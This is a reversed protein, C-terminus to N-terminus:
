SKLLEGAESVKSLRGQSWPRDLFKKVNFRSILVSKVYNLPIGLGKVQCFGYYDDGLIAYM